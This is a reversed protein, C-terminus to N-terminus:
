WVCPLIRDYTRGLVRENLHGMTKWPTCEAKNYQTIFGVKLTCTHEQHEKFSPYQYGLQIVLIDAHLRIGYRIGYSSVEFWLM